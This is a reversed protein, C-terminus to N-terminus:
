RCHMKFCCSLLSPSTRVITECCNRCPLPLGTRFGAGGRGNKRSRQLLLKPVGLHLGLVQRTYLRKCGYSLQRLMPLCLTTGCQTQHYCFILLSRYLVHMSQLSSGFYLSTNLLVGASIKLVKLEMLSLSLPQSADMQITSYRQLLSVVSQPFSAALLL